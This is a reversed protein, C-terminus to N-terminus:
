EMIKITSYAENKIVTKFRNMNIEGVEDSSEKLSNIAICIILDYLEDEDDTDYEDEDLSDCTGVLEYSDADDDRSFYAYGTTNGGFGNQAGYHMICIPYKNNEEKTSKYFVIEYPSYSDPNKLYKKLSNVCSYAYSEYTIQRLITDVDEYGVLTQLIEQGEKYMGKELFSIAEEYNKKPLSVKVNYIVSGVVVVLIVGIVIVILKNSIKRSRQVVIEQKEDTVTSVSPCGCHPCSNAKDSIEKGCEQCNILAM